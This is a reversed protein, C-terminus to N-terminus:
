KRLYFSKMPLKDYISQRAAEFEDLRDHVVHLFPAMLFSIDVQQDLGVTVMTSRSAAHFSQQWRMQVDICKFIHLVRFFTKPYADDICQYGCNHLLRRSIHPKDYILVDMGAGLIADAIAFTERHLFRKRAQEYQDRMLFRCFIYWTGAPPRKAWKKVRKGDTKQPHAEFLSALAPCYHLLRVKHREWAHDARSLAYFERSVLGCGLLDKPSLHALITHILWGEM